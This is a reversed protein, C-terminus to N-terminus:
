YGKKLLRKFVINMFTYETVTAPNNVLKYTLIGDDDVQVDKFVKSDYYTVFYGLDRKAEVPLDGALPSKVLTVAGAVPTAPISFQNKYLEYLNIRFQTGDYEAATQDTPMICSPMYFFLPWAAFKSGIVGNADAVVVRNPTFTAQVDYNGSAATSIKEGKKPLTEIRMTGKVDLQETPTKTQVGVRENQASLALPLVALGLLLLTKIMKM